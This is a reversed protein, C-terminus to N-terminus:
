DKLYRMWECTRMIGERFSIEPKFGFEREVIKTDFENYTLSIGKYELEGIGIDEGPAVIDGLISLYYKLPHPEESGIYYRKNGDGRVGIEYFIKAADSIFVFDYLQEGPSFKTPIGNLLKRISSNILRPSNEGPGYINSIIGSLFKIGIGNAISQAMFGATKKAIAYASSVPIDVEMEIAKTVEYEMVSGAYIFKKCGLRKAIKVAECTIEVNKLQLAVNSRAEGSAGEWAFHYFLDMEEKSEQLLESINRLDCYVIKLNHLQEIRSVDSLENRVIATVFDGHETFYKCVAAGVFGNAGTILVNM